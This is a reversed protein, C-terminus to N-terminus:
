DVVEDIIIISQVQKLQWGTLDQNDLAFTTQLLDADYGYTNILFTFTAENGAADMFDLHQITELGQGAFDDTAVFDIFLEDGVILSSTKSIQVHNIVSFDVDNEVLGGNPAHMTVQPSELIEVTEPQIESLEEKTCSTFMLFFALVFLSILNKM